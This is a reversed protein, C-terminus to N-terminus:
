FYYKFMLVFFYTPHLEDELRRRNLRDKEKSQTIKEWNIFLVENEKLTDSCSEFTSLTNRLNPYFYDAFKNKSQM